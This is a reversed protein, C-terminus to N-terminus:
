VLGELYYRPRIPRPRLQLGYGSADMKAGTVMAQAQNGIEVSRRIWDTGFEGFGPLMRYVAERRATFAQIFTVVDSIGDVAAQTAPGWIGDNSIGLAVQLIKTAEGPGENVNTDFYVLNAGPKLGPCRPLWYSQWYITYGETQTINIVSTHALHNEDCYRNFESQIIGDMTAGGPDGPTNSFNRKNTWDRPFPAEQALTDPLCLLFQPSFDVM